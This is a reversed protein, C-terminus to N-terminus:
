LPTGLDEELQKITRSVPSPAVNLSIAAALISGLRAVLMFNDVRASALGWRHLDMM